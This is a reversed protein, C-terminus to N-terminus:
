KSLELMRELPLGAPSKMETPISISNEGTKLVHIIKDLTITKMDPCIPTTKPFYFTKDPNKKQLDYLVGM